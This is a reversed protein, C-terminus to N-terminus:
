AVSKLLLFMAIYTKIRFRSMQGTSRYTLLQYQVDTVRCVIPSGVSGDRVMSLGMHFPLYYHYKSM